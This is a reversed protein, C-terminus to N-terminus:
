KLSGMQQLGKAIEASLLKMREAQAATPITEVECKALRRLSAIKGNTIAIVTDAAIRLEPPSPAFRQPGCKGKMWRRAAEEVAWTPIDECAMEYAQMLMDASDDSITQRPFAGLLVGIAMM